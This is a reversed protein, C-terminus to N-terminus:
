GKAAVDRVMREEHKMTVLERQSASLKSQKAQILAYEAALDIGKIPDHGVKSFNVGKPLAWGQTQFMFLSRAKAITNM